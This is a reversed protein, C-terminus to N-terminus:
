SNYAKLNKLTSSISGRQLINEKQDKSMRRKSPGTYEDQVFVSKSNQGM